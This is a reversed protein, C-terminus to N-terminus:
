ARLYLEGGLSFVSILTGIVYTMNSDEFYPKALNTVTLILGILVQFAIFLLLASGGINGLNKLGKKENKEKNYRIATSEFISNDNMTNNIM